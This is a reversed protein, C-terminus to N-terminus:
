PIDGLHDNMDGDLRRGSPSIFQGGRNYGTVCSAPNLGNIYQNLYTCEPTIAYLIREGKPSPM